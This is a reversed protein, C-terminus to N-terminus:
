PLFSNTLKHKNDQAEVRETVGADVVSCLVQYRVFVLLPPLSIVQDRVLVLLISSLM